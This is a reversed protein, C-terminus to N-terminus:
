RCVIVTECTMSSGLSKRAFSIKHVGETEIKLRVSSPTKLTEKYSLSTSEIEVEVKKNNKHSLEILVEEGVSVVIPSMDILVGDLETNYSDEGFVISQTHERTCGVFLCVITAIAVFLNKRGFM